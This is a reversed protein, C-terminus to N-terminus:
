GLRLYLVPLRTSPSPGTAAYNKQISRCPHLGLRLNEVNQGKIYKAIMAKANRM